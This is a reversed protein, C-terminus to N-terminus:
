MENRTKAKVLRMLHEVQMYDDLEAREEPTLGETKERRILLAVREKTGPSAEFNAIRKADPGSAMFQVIEEYAKMAPYIEILCALKALLNSLPRHNTGM